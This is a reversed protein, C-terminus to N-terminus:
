RGRQEWLQRTLGVHGQHEACHEFAHLAAWAASHDQDRLHVTQGLQHADLAALAARADDACRNVYAALNAASQGQTRFEADRDRQVQRGAAGSLWFRMSGWAHAVLVAISNMEPGPSWDLAEARGEIAKLYAQRQAELSQLGSRVFPEM